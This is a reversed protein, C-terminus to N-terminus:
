RRYSEPVFFRNESFVNLKLPSMKRTIPVRICVNIIFLVLLISTNIIALPLSHLVELRKEQVTYIVPEITSNSAFNLYKKRILM